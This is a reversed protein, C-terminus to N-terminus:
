SDQNSAGRVFVARQAEGCQVRQPKPFSRDQGVAGDHLHWAGHTAMRLWPCGHAATRLRTAIPCECPGVLSFIRGMTSCLRLWKAPCKRACISCPLVYSRHPSPAELGWHQLAGGGSAHALSNCRPLAAENSNWASAVGNRPRQTSDRHGSRTSSNM